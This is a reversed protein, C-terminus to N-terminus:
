FRINARLGAIFANELSARPPAIYELDGTVFFWPTVAFSYYVEAGQEDSFRDGEPTLEDQLDDSLDYYFYGLGFSDLKRGPIM